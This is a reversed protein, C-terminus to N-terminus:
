PFQWRHDSFWGGDGLADACPPVEVQPTVTLAMVDFAVTMQYHGSTRYVSWDATFGPMKM